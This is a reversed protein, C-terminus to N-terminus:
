LSRRISEIENELRNIRIKIDEAEEEMENLVDMTISHSREGSRIAYFILTATAVNILLNLIQIVM